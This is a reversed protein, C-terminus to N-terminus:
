QAAYLVLAEQKIRNRLYPSIAAETLLDVKRGLLSSFQRELAILALLSKREGFEVLLDVDSQPTADGRAMSGFLSLQKVDNQRCLEVLNAQISQSLAFPQTNMYDLIHLLLTKLLGILIIAVMWTSLPISVM